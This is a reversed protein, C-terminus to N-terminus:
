NELKGMRDLFTLIRLTDESLNYGTGTGKLVPKIKDFADRYWSPIEEEKNYVKPMASKITQEIQASLNAFRKDLMDNILATTEEKTM